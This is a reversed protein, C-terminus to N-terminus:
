VDSEVFYQPARENRVVARSAVIQRRSLSFPTDYLLPSIPRESRAQRNLQRPTLSIASLRLAFGTPHKPVRRGCFRHPTEPCQGLGLGTLRGVNLVSLGAHYNCRM